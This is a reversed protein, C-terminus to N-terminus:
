SGEGIVDVLVQGLREQANLRGELLKAKRVYLDARSNPGAVRWGRFTLRHNALRRVDQDRGRFREVQQQRRLAAAVHQARGPGQDDILNVRHGVIAPARVQRQADFTQSVKNPPAFSQRADPQRGGLLRDPLHRAEQNPRPAPPAQILLTLRAALNDVLTVLPLQVQSDLDGARREVRHHRALHPLFDVAPDGLQDLPMPGGQHEDVRAPQGLSHRRVERLPQALLPHGRVVSAEGPLQAKGGFLSELLPLEPREDGGSRELQPDVDARHVEDALQTRRAPDRREHLPDPAGAVRQAPGRLSSDKGEAPVLQHLARREHPRDGGAIQIAQDNRLLRHVDQSLLDDSRDRCLLPVFALQVVDQPLGIGISVECPFLEILRHAHERISEGGLTAAAAYVDKVILHVAADPAPAAGTEGGESRAPRDRIHRVVRHNELGLPRADSRQAFIEGDLAQRAVDELEAVCGPADEPDLRSSHSHFVGVALRGRDGEPDALRRSAADLERRSDGLQPFLDFRAGGVGLRRDLPQRTVAPHDRLRGATLDHLVQHRPRPREARHRGHLRHNQLAEEILGPAHLEHNVGGEAAPDVAGPPQRQALAEAAAEVELEFRRGGLIRDDESEAVRVRKGQVVYKLVQFRGRHPIKEDLREEVRGYERGAPAPVRRARQRHEPEAAALLNRRRQLPDFRIVQQGRYEGVLDGAELVDDAVPLYGIVRQHILRDLITQDLRHVDVPQGLDELPHQIARNTADRFVRRLRRRETM